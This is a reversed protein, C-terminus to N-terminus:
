DSGRPPTGSVDGATLAVAVEHFAPLLAALECLGELGRRAECQELMPEMTALMAERWKDGHRRRGVELIAEATLGLDMAERLARGDPLGCCRAAQDVPAECPGPPFTEAFFAALRAVWARARAAAMPDNKGVRRELRALRRSLREARSM